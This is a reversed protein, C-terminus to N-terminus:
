ERHIVLTWPLLRCFCFTENQVYHCQFLTFVIFVNFRVQSAIKHLINLVKWEKDECSAGAALSQVASLIAGGDQRQLTESGIIILPKKATKFKKSFKHQGSVIQQLIKPDDGLHEHEYTM